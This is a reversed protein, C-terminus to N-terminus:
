IFPLTYHPRRANKEARKLRKFSKSLIHRSQDEMSLSEYAYQMGHSRFIIVESTVSSKNKHLCEKSLAAHMFIYQTQTMDSGQEVSVSM